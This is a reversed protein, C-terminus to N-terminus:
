SRRKSRNGKLQRLTTDRAFLEYEASGLAYIAIKGEADIHVGWGYRKTLPSLRFDPQVRAFFKERAIGRREGNAAYLVDDSTYKYPNNILLEYELRPITKPERAPPVEAMFAPCDAAVSIFTNPLNTTTM